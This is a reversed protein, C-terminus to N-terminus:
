FQLLFYFVSFDHCCLAPSAEAWPRANSARGSPGILMHLGHMLPPAGLAPEGSIGPRCPRHCSCWRPPPYGGPLRQPMPAWRCAGAIFPRSSPLSIATNPSPPHRTTASPTRPHDQLLILLTLHHACFPPPFSTLPPVWQLPPEATAAAEIGVAGARSRRGAESLFDLPPHSPAWLTSLSSPSGSSFSPHRRPEVSKFHCPPPASSPLDRGLHHWAALLHPPARCSRCAVARGHRVHAAGPYPLIPCQCTPAAM